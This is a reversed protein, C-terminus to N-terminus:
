PRRVEGDDSGTRAVVFIRRFPFFTSGDARRPYATSLQPALDSRFAEWADDDLASRVPTLATGTVWDLVPDDGTLQQVYTTEWADVVCGADTLLAAYGTPGDVTDGGRFDIQSLADRWRPSTAVSRIIRHSPFEFNGPVQFALHAGPHLERAWSHLLERHEPVWQLTANSIVVDTDPAPRWDRVDQLQADIGRERAAAVMQPSNDTAEIAADPWRAALGATLNGPGCGLDVVRRPRESDIRALLEGYPRGRHDAFALYHKPNWM